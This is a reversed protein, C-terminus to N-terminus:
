GTQELKRMPKYLVIIVILVFIGLGILAHGFTFLSLFQKGITTYLAFLSFIISRTTATHLWKTQMVLLHNRSPQRLGDMIAFLVFITAFRMWSGGVLFWAIILLFGQTMATWIWTYAYWFRDWLLYVYKSCIMMGIAIMSTLVWGISEPMWLSLLHPLALLPLYSVHNSLSRFMVLLRLQPSGFVRYLSEKAIRLNEQVLQVFTKDSTDIVFPERLQRVLLVLVGASIVDLWALVSYGDTWLRQLIAASVLPIILGSLQELSMMHWIEKGFSKEDDLVRLNDELFAQWTGSWFSRYLAACIWAVVFWRRSPFLFLSVAWVVNCVVATLLSKKRGTTDALVSTPLELLWILITSINSLIVIEWLHLGSYTYLMSIVPMLFSVGSLFNIWKHITINRRAQQPSIM